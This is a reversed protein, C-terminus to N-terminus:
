SLSWDDRNRYVSGTGLDEAADSLIRKLHEGPGIADLPYGRQHKCGHESAATRDDNLNGKNMNVMCIKCNLRDKEATMEEDYTNNAWDIVDEDDWEIKMERYDMANTYLIDVRSKEAGAELVVIRWLSNDCRPRIHLMFRLEEHTDMRAAYKTLEYCMRDDRHDLTAGWRCMRHLLAWKDETEPKCFVRSPFKPIWDNPLPPDTHDSFRPCTLGSGIRKELQESFEATFWSQHFMQNREKGMKPWPVRAHQLIDACIQLRPSDCSLNHYLCRSALPLSFNSSLIYISQLTEPALAQFPDRPVYSQNSSSKIEPSM